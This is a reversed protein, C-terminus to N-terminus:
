SKGDGSRPSCVEYFELSPQMLDQAHGRQVTTVWDPSHAVCTMYTQRTFADQRPDFSCVLQPYSVQIKNLSTVPGSIRVVFESVPVVKVRWATAVQALRRNIIEGKRPTDYSKEAIAPCLPYFRTACGCVLMLSCILGVALAPRMTRPM